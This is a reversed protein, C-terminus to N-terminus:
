PKNTKLLPVLVLLTARHKRLWNYEGAMLYRFDQYQVLLRYMNIYERVVGSSLTRKVLGLGTALDKADNRLTDDGDSLGGCLLVGLLRMKTRSTKYDSVISSKQIEAITKNRWTRVEDLQESSILLSKTSEPQQIQPQSLLERAKDYITRVREDARLWWEIARIGNKSMEVEFLKPTLHEVCKVSVKDVFAADFVNVRVVDMSPRQTVVCLEPKDNNGRYLAYSHPFLREKSVYFKVQASGLGAFCMKEVDKASITKFYAVKHTEALTEM